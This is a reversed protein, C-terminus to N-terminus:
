KGINEKLCETFNNWVGEVWEPEFLQNVKNKVIDAPVNWEKPVTDVIQM